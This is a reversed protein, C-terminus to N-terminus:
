CGTAAVISPASPVINIVGGIAGAEQDATFTKFVDTRSAAQSPILALDVRRQGAGQNAVSIMGIGDLSVYNLDPTIGRIAVYQSEQEGYLVRMTSVGPVRALAESLYQDPLDGTDDQVLSDVVVPSNRRTQIARENQFATGTVVIDESTGDEVATTDPASQAHAALPLVLASAALLHRAFDNSSVPM